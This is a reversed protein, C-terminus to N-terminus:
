TTYGAKYDQYDIEAQATEEAETVEEIAPETTLTYNNITIECDHLIVSRINDYMTPQDTREIIEWCEM